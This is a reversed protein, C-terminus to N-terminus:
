KTIKISNHMIIDIPIYKDGCLCVRIYTQRNGLVCVCMYVYVRM